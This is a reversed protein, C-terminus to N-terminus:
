KHNQDVRCAYHMYYVMYWIYTYYVMGYRVM